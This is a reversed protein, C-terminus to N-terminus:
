RYTLLPRAKSPRKLTSVSPKAFPHAILEARLAFPPLAFPDSGRRLLVPSLAPHSRSSPSKPEESRSAGVASVSGVLTPNRSDRLLARLGRENCISISHVDGMTTPPMGTRPIAPQALTFVSRGSATPPPTSSARSWRSRASPEFLAPRGSPRDSTLDRGGYRSV